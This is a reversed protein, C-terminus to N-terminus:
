GQNAMREAIGLLADPALDSVLAQHLEESDWTVVAPVPLRGPWDPPHAESLAPRRAEGARRPILYHYLVKGDQKYLIVAGRVGEVICVEAGNLEFGPLPLAVSAPLGLERALFRAVEDPDSTEVHEAQVARRLFDEVFAASQYSELGRPPTPDPSPTPSRFLLLALIAALATGAMVFPARGASRRRPERRPVPRFATRERALADFIRERVAPPAKVNRATRYAELLVREQALYDRCAECEELHRRAALIDPSAKVPREPPWLLARAEDCRM